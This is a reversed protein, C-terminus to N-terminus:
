GATQPDRDPAGFAGGGPTEIRLVAGAPADVSSKAGLPAGDLTDRGQLGDGGGELGWPARARREALLSVRLPRLLELERVLGDGGPQAGQGGSGRRVALTRVRVPHRAELVEVDTLRTNTMHTHVANAGPHTRTAGAGGGLTEYYGFTADGFTLNNMTGQSAAALGLAGLLVDVVRQATEVNGAAVAREPGPDLLSREPVHLTVPRLCGGNLPIPAGVLCRLVYLVAAVTVARPANLNGPHEAGTGEFDIRLAGDDCAEITAAVPTGDDLADECRRVGRPLTRIAAAVRRAADDQVHAMYASVRPEGHRACAELLLRAGTRNAAIQAELDAINEAPRRAPYAGSALVGLVAERDFVGDRVIRMARFVVGEEELTRADPPMSGPTTGGVDAHHGRSAVFFRLVGDADHVPTVVTIDPLHSGGGAPDNTVYVDGPAPEPHAAHVARVSESMAGLHVPIHPANVVLGGAADFIACSYDRRERINTSTATRGLVVGMQEAISTYLNSFISLDIPDPAARRLATSDPVDDSPRFDRLEDPLPSAVAVRAAEGVDDILLTGQEDVRLVFGPDVCFTATAELVLAPGSLEAGAGLSERLYVPVDDYFRGAAFLRTTRLPRPVAHQPALVPLSPPEPAAHADVRLSVLEVPDFPRAHGLERLHADDFAQRLVRAGDADLVAALPLAIAAETGPHRLVVHAEVRIRESVAGDALLAARGAADLRARRPELASLASADLAVRGLDEHGHWALPAVGMGFASLVGALPHSVIRRMGLIRAVPCAHQGGAGGFVVLAHERVDHGRGISVRRIAEAMSENAIRFFGAALAEPAFGCRQSLTGLVAHVRAADLSFPFRDGALRGLALNADTVTLAAADVHGYCLPGPRAGASEPGVTLRAASGEGEVRCLSGGGAAVTHIAMVPVRLSVGAVEAEFHREPAGDFRSVDTSTGGMDFGIARASGVARAVHGLAVVGGAPGSLVADRGRFRAVDALGGGSQMLRLTSGPLAARLKALYARLLPTLYADAVTTQGRAVLGIEPDVEHSCAVDAFGISAAIRAIEREQAAGPERYAHLVLIALSEIGKARWAALEARLREADPPTGPMGDHSGRADTELVAEALPAPREIALSFLSPRTQDGIRLVDAFGRTVVLGVRAGRRELLANTALTTGMRVDCPPIPAEPRLGLIERIAVLPAEDSSPVKAVHLAGTGPERAVCDTFTGGRDLWFQWRDV